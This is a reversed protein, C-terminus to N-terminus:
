RSAPRPRADLLQDVPRQRDLLAVQDRDAVARQSSAASSSGLEQASARRAHGARDSRPAQAARVTGALADDAAAAAAAEGVEVGVALPDLVVLRQLPDALQRDRRGPLLDPDAGVREAVDLRGPDVGGPALLVEVVVRQCCRRASRLNSAHALEGGGSGRRRRATVAVQRPLPHRALPRQGAGHAQEVEAEEPDAALVVGLLVLAVPQRRDAALVDGILPPSTTKSKGALLPWRRTCDIRSGAAIRPSRLSAGGGRRGRRGARRARPRPAPAVDAGVVDVGVDLLLIPSSKEALSKRVQCPVTSAATSSAPSGSGSDSAAALREIQPRPRARRRPARCCGPRRGGSRCRGARGRGSGRRRASGPSPLALPLSLALRRAFSSRSTSRRIEQPDVACAPTGGPLRYRNDAVLRYASRRAGLSIGPLLLVRGVLKWIGGASDSRRPSRRTVRASRATPRSGSCRM